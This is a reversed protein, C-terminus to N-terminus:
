ESGGDANIVNSTFCQKDFFSKSFYEGLTVPRPFPRSTAEMETSKANARAKIKTKRRQNNRSKRRSRTKEDHTDPSPLQPAKQHGTKVLTWAGQSEESSVEEISQVETSWAGLTHRLFTSWGDGIEDESESDSNWVDLDNTMIEYFTPHNCSDPKVM